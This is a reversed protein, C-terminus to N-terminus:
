DVQVSEILFASGRRYPEIIIPYDGEALGKDRFIERVRKRIEECYAAGNDIQQNSDLEIAIEDERVRCRVGKLPLVGAVIRWVDREVEDVVPLLRDDISIGTTIRSSLCPAAPLESLDTLGLHAAIARVGQKDIGAEVYPHHVQFESAAKLGPRYDSLDDLNTGSAITLETQKHITDYLCSKCFYCRDVPNSLYSPDQMEGADIVALHWGERAAYREVRRTASVPVAASLAHFMHSQPNVRHAVAALTMSDVGGSVAVAIPGLDELQSQLASLYQAPSLSETM